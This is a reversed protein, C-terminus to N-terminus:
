NISMLLGVLFFGGYTEQYYKGVHYTNQETGVVPM